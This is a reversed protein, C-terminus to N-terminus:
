HLTSLVAFALAPVFVVAGVSVLAAHKEGHGRWGSVSAVIAAVVSMCASIGLSIMFLGAYGLGSMGGSHNHASMDAFCYVPALSTKALRSYKPRFAIRLDDDVPRDYCPATGPPSVEDAHTPPAFPNAACPRTERRTQSDPM